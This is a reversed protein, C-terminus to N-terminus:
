YKCKKYLQTFVGGNKHCNPDWRSSLGELWAQGGGWVIYGRVIAHGGGLGQGAYLQVLPPSLDRDQYDSGWPTPSNLRFYNYVLLSFLSCRLLILSYMKYVQVIVQLLKFYKRKAGFLVIM